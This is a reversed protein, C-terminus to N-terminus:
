LKNHYTKENKREDILKQAAKVYGIQYSSSDHLINTLENDTKNYLKQYFFDVVGQESEEKSKNDAGLYKQLFVRIEPFYAIAFLILLVSCLPQIGLTSFDHGLPSFTFVLTVTSYTFQFLNFSGAILFVALITRFKKIKLFKLITIGTLLGYGLYNQLGIEYSKVVVLFLTYITFIWLTSLIITDITKRLM